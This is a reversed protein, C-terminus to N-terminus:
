TALHSERELRQSDSEPSPNAPKRPSAIPSCRSPLSNNLADIKFRRPPDGICADM